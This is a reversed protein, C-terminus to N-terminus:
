FLNLVKCKKLFYIVRPKPWGNLPHFKMLRHWREENKRLLEGREQRRDDKINTQSSTTKPQAFFNIAFLMLMPMVALWPIEDLFLWARSSYRIIDDKTTYRDYNGNMSAADYKKVENWVKM